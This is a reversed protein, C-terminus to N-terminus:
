SSVENMHNFRMAGREARWVVRYTTALFPDGVNTSVWNPIVLVFGLEYMVSALLLVAVPEVAGVAVTRLTFFILTLTSTLAKAPAEGTFTM